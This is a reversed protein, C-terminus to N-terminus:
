LIKPSMREVVSKSCSIKSRHILILFLLMSPLVVLAQAADGKKYRMQLKKQQM